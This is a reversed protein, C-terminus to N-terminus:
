QTARYFVPPAPTNGIVANRFLNTQTSLSGRLTWPGEPVLSTTYEVRYTTNRKGYIMLQRSGNTPPLTEVLPQAGIIVIRGDKRLPTPASGIGTRTGALSSIHLPVFASTQGPMTTFRLRALHQTGQLAHGPQATFNLLASNPDAMELGVAATEPALMDIAANTIRDGSFELMC